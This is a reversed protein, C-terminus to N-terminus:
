VSQLMTETPERSGASPTARASRMMSGFAHLPQFRIIAFIMQVLIENRISLSLESRSTIHDKLWQTDYRKELEDLPLEIYRAKEKKKHQRSFSLLPQSLPLNMNDGIAEQSIGMRSSHQKKVGSILLSPQLWTLEIDLQVQDGLFLALTPTLCM